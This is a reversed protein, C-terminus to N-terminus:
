WSVFNEDNHLIPHVLVILHVMISIGEQDVQKTPPESPQSFASADLPPVVWTRGLSRPISIHIEANSSSLFWSKKETVRKLSGLTANNYGQLM